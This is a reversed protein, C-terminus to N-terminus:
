LTSTAPPALAELTARVDGIGTSGGSAYVCNGAVGVPCATAAAALGFRPTPLPPLETWLNSVPNYSQVTGLPPGNVIAQGGVTYLCTGSQGPPCTTATTAM